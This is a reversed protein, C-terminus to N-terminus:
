CATTVALTPACLVVVAGLVPLPPLPPVPPLPVVVGAVVVVLPCADPVTVTVTLAAGVNTIVGGVVALAPRGAENVNATVAAAALPLATRSRVTRHPSPPLWDSPATVPLAM